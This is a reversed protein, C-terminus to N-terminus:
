NGANSNADVAGPLGLHRDRLSALDRRTVDWMLDVPRLLRFARNCGVPKLATPLGHGWSSPSRCLIQQWEKPRVIATPGIPCAETELASRARFAACSRACPTGTGEVPFRKATIGSNVLRVQRRRDDGSPFQREVTILSTSVTDVTM